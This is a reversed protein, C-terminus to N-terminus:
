CGASKVSSFNRKDVPFSHPSPASTSSTLSGRSLVNGRPSSTTHTSILQGGVANEYSGPVVRTM